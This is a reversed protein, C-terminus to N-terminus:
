IIPSAPYDFDSVMGSSGKVELLHIRHELHINKELLYKIMLDKDQSCHIGGNGELFSKAIKQAAIREEPRM